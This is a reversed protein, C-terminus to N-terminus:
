RQLSRGPTRGVPTRTPSQARPDAWRADALWRWNRIVRGDTGTGEWVKYRYYSAGPIQNWNLTVQGSLSPAATVTFPARISVVVEQNGTWSLGPNNWTVYRTNGVSTTGASSFSLSNTDAHLTGHNKIAPAVDASGAFVIVLQIQGDGTSLNLSEIKYTRGAYTFDDDDLATSCDAQPGDNDCGYWSYSGVIRASVTLTTSWIPYTQAQASGPALLAMGAAMGALPSLLILPPGIRRGGASRARKCLSGLPGSAPVLLRRHRFPWLGRGARVM